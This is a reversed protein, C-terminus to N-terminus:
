GDIYREVLDTIVLALVFFVIGLFGFSAVYVLLSTAAEIM